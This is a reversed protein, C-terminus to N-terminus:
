GPSGAFLVAIRGDEQGDAEMIAAPQADFAFIDFAHELAHVEQAFRGQAVLGLDSLLDDDDAAAVHGDVHGQGGLPRAGLVHGQEAQLLALLHRGPFILDFLGQFLSILITLLKPGLLKKM